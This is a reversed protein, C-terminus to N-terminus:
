PAEKINSYIHVSLLMIISSTISWSDWVVDGFLFYEVLATVIISLTGLITRIIAGFKKIILSVVLGHFVFLFILFLVSPQIVGFIGFGTQSSTSVDAFMWSILNFIVGGIYLKINQLMVNQDMDRQMVWQNYVSSLSASMVMSAMFFLGVLSTQYKEPSQDKSSALNYQYTGISLLIIACWKLQTLSAKLFIMSLFAIPIIRITLLLSYAAGSFYKMCLFTLNNQLFYVLALLIFHADDYKNFIKIGEKGLDDYLCWVYAFILKSLETILVIFSMHYSYTGDSNKSIRIAIPIAATSLLAASFYIITLLNESPNRYYFQLTNTISRVIEM